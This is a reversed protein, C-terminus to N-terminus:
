KRGRRKTPAPAPEEKRAPEFQAENYYRRLRSRTSVWTRGEKAAPIKGTQLLFFTSRQDRGIFAGIQEAGRLIDTALDDPSNM